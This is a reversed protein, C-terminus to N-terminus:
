RPQSAEAGPAARRGTRARRGGACLRRRPPPEPELHFTAQPEPTLGGTPQQAPPRLGPVAVIFLPQAGATRRCLVTLLEARRARFFRLKELRPAGGPALSRSLEALRKAGPEAGSFLREAIAAADGGFLASAAANSWVVHPPHGAAVLLPAGGAKLAAFPADGLAASIAEASTGSESSEIAM